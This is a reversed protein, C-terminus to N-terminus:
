TLDVDASVVEDGGRPAVEVGGISLDMIVVVVKEGEATLDLVIEREREREREGGLPTTSMPHEPPLNTAATVAPRDHCCLKSTPNVYKKNKESFEKGLAHKVYTVFFM